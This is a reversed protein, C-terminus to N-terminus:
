RYAAPSLSASLTGLRRCESETIAYWEGVRVRGRDTEPDPDRATPDLVFVQGAELPTDTSFDMGADVGHAVAGDGVALGYAGLEAVAEDVIRRAPVGPEAVRRVADHAMEVAVAARREWGGSGDLVFTRALPTADGDVRPTIAVIIPADARLTGDGAAVTTVDTLGAADDGVTELAAPTLPDGDAYVRGDVVTAEDLRTAVAVLGSEAASRGAEVSV